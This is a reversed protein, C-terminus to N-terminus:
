REIEQEDHPRWCLRGRQYEIWLQLDGATMALFAAAPLALAWGCARCTAVPLFTPFAAPLAPYDAAKDGALDLLRGGAARAFQAGTMTRAAELAAAGARIESRWEVALRRAAAWAQGLAGLQGAVAVAPDDVVHGRMLAALALGVDSAAGEFPRSDDADELAAAGALLVAAQDQGGDVAALWARGAYGAAADHEVTLSLLRGGLVLSAVGHGAEHLAITSGGQPGNTLDFM